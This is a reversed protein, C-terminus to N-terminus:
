GSAQLFDNALDDFKYQQLWRLWWTAPFLYNGEGWERRMRQELNGLLAGFSNRTITPQVSQRAKLCDRIRRRVIRDIEDQRVQWRGPLDYIDPFLSLQVPTARSCLLQWPHSTNAGVQIMLTDRGPRSPHCHPCYAFADALARPQNDSLPDKNEKIDENCTECILILNFPHVSLAPYKSRPLFHDLSGLIGTSTPEMWTGDCAPCVNTETNIEAFERYVVQSSIGQAYDVIAAPVGQMVKDYFNELWKGVSVALFSPMQQEPQLHFTFSPDELHKHYTIDHRFADVIAQKEVQNPHNAFETLPDLLKQKHKRLWGVTATDFHQNLVVADTADESCSLELLAEQLSVILWLHDFCDPLSVPHLM